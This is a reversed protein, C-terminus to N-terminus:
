GVGRDDGRRVAAEVQALLHSREGSNDLVVDAIALKEALPRQSALRAQAQDRALRDRAQVRALQQEPTCTVVWIETVLDTMGAELLLPIALVATAGQVQALDREYCARVVPFIQAELWHREEPHNFIHDGLWRRDLQGDPRLSAPGYRQAIAALVPTGVAVAERAYLDADLVPWQYHQALYSSVTTKGTALGGTLGIRRRPWTLEGSHTMTAAM